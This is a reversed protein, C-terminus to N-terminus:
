RGGTAPAGSGAAGAVTIQKVMGHVFHPKGDKADPVFCYLGYEGPALDLVITNEGKEGIGTTGGMPTGPPPGQMTQLWSLLDAATKGPALRAIFVEHPQSADNVVRVAQKGAVLPRSLVFDYDNLTMTLDVKPAPREADSAAVVIEKAMGKMVHLKGDPSPIFCLAAYRGAELNVFATATAGPAPANPGGIHRVWSPNAEGGSFAAFVDSLTKGEELKLLWVHHLEPGKNTLRIETWGAGVTDPAEFAFDFATIALVGAPAAAARASGAKAAHGAHGQAAGHDHTSQAAASSAALALVISAAIGKM